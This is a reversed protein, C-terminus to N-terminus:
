EDLGSLKVEPNGEIIPNLRLTIETEWMKYFKLNQKRMEEITNRIDEMKQWQLRFDHIIVATCHSLFYGLGILLAIIIVLLVTLM